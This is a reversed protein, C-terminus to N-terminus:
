RGGGIHDLAVEAAIQALGLTVEPPMEGLAVELRFQGFFQGRHRREPARVLPARVLGLILGYAREDFMVPDDVFLNLLIQRSLNAFKNWRLQLWRRGFGNPFGFLSLLRQNRVLLLRPM